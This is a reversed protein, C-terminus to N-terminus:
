ASDAAVLRQAGESREAGVQVRGAFKKGGYSVGVEAAEREGPLTGNQIRAMDGSLAFRKWGVAM